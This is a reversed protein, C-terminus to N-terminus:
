FCKSQVVPKMKNQSGRLIFFSLCGFLKFADSTVNEGTLVAYSNKSQRFILSELPLRNKVYTVYPKGFRWFSSSLRASDLSVRATTRVLRISQEARDIFEAHSNPPSKKFM